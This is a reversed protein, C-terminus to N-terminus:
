KGRCDPDYRATTPIFQNKATLSQGDNSITIFDDVPWTLLWKNASQQWTGILHGAQITKNEKISVEVNNSWLWTGILTTPKGSKRIASIPIGWNSKGVLKKGNDILSLTDIFPPWSIIYQGKTKNITKWKSIINGFSAKGNPNITVYLGTSWKWCGTFSRKALKPNIKIKTKKQSVVKKKTALPKTSKLTTSTNKVQYSTDNERYPHGGIKKMIENYLKIEATILDALYQEKQSPFKSERLNKNLAKLSAFRKHPARSYMHAAFSNTIQKPKINPNAGFELLLKVAIYRYIATGVWSAQSYQPVSYITSYTYLPTDTHKNGRNFTGDLLSQSVREGKKQFNNLCSRLASEFADAHATANIRPKSAKARSHQIKKLKQKNLLGLKQQSWYGIEANIAKGFSNREVQPMVNARVCNRKLINKQHEIPYDIWEYLKFLKKFYAAMAGNAIKANIGNAKNLLAVMDKDKLEKAQKIFQETNNNPFNKILVSVLKTNKTKIALRWLRPYFIRKGTRIKIKIDNNRLFDAKSSSLLKQLQKINKTKIAQRLRADFALNLHLQYNGVEKKENFVRKSYERIKGLEQIKFYYKEFTINITKNDKSYPMQYRNDALKNKKTIQFKNESLMKIKLDRILTYEFDMKRGLSGKFTWALWRGDSRFEYIRDVKFNEWVGVLKPDFSAYVTNCFFLLFIPLLLQHFFFKKNLM